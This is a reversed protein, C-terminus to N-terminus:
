FRGLLGASQDVVPALRVLVGLVFEPSGGVSHYRLGDLAELM